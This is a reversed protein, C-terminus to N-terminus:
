NGSGGSNSGGAGFTISGNASISQATQNSAVQGTNNTQNLAGAFGAYAGNSASIDGSDIDWSNNSGNVNQGTQVTNGTVTSDMDAFSVALSVWTQNYSDDNNTGGNNANQGGESAVM